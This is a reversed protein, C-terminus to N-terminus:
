REKPRITAITNARIILRELLICRYISFQFICLDMVLQIFFLLVYNYCCRHIGRTHLVRQLLTKAQLNDNSRHYKIM